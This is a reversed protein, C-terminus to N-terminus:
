LSVTRAERRALEAAELIAVVDRAFRVDCPHSSSAGASGGESARALEGIAAGFAEVATADGAPVTEVGGDGFLVFEFATGDPPVDLSLSMGSVAGAAHRLLVHATDHPAGMAAVEVVPGLVPLIVSLAHPGVDWLGGRERRWASGGYPSGPQFISALMTARAGHWGGALAARRLFADVNACFRNTFFVVSALGKRDVAEVVRDAEVTSLALPKDLLLHLGAEAARAALPAQVDPPLAVAVADVDAFLADVDAYAGVAYRKAVAAARAQTRGWVGVFEADPHAALAAAQTEAAWYGTGLLGFRM